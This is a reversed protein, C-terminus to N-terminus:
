QQARAIVAVLASIRKFPRNALLLISVCLYSFFAPLSIIANKPLMKKGMGCEAKERASLMYMMLLTRM